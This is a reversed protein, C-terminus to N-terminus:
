WRHTPYSGKGVRPPVVTGDMLVVLRIERPGLVGEEGLAFEVVYYWPFIAAEDDVPRVDLSSLRIEPEPHAKRAWELGIAVARAMPLPPDGREPEWVPLLRAREETIAFWQERGSRETIVLLNIEDAPAGAEVARAAALLAFPVALRRLKRM